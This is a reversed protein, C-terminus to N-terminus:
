ENEQMTDNVLGLRKYREAAKAGVGRQWWWGEVTRGGGGYVKLGTLEAESQRTKCTLQEDTM